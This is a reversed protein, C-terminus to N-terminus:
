EKLTIKIKSQHLYQAYMPLDSISYLEAYKQTALQLLEAYLLKSEILDQKDPRNYFPLIIIIKASSTLSFSNYNYERIKTIFNAKTTCQNLANLELQYTFKNLM